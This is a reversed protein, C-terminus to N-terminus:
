DYRHDVVNSMGGRRVPQPRKDSTTLPPKRGDLTRADVM